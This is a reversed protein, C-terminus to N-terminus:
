CDDVRKKGKTYIITFTVIAEGFNNQSQSQSMHVITGYVGNIEEITKNLIPGISTPTGSLLALKYM